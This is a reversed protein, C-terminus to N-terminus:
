DYTKPKSLRVYQKVCCCCNSVATSGRGAHALSRTVAAPVSATFPIVPPPLFLLTSPQHHTPLQQIKQRRAFILNCEGSSANGIALLPAEEEGEKARGINLGQPHHASRNFGPLIYGIPLMSDDVRIYIAVVRNHVYMTHRVDCVM